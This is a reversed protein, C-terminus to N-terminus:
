EHWYATRRRKLGGRKGNSLYHRNGLNFLPRSEFAEPAVEMSLAYTGVQYVRGRHKPKPATRAQHAILANRDAATGRM